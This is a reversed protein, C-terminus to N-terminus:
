SLFVKGALHMIDGWVSCSGCRCCCGLDYRHDCRRFILCSSFPFFFSSFLQPTLLLSSSILSSPFLLFSLSFSILHSTSYSLILHSLFHSSFLSLTLNAEYISLNMISLYTCFLHLPLTLLHFEITIHTTM